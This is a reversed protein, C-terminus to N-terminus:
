CNLLYHLREGPFQNCLCPNSKGEKFNGDSKRWRSSIGTPHTLNVLEEIEEIPIDKEVCVSMSVIGENYVEVRNM